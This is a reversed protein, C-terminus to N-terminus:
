GASTIGPTGGPEGLPNPPASQQGERRVGTQSLRLLQWPDNMDGVQADILWPKGSAIAQPLLSELEAPSTISTSKVGFAAALLNFDPNNLEHATPRGFTARTSNKVNAFERNNFVLATVAFGYKAATALEALGYGFGGDGTACV